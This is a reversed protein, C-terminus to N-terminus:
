NLLESLVGGIAGLIAVIIIIDIISILFGVVALGRPRKFM